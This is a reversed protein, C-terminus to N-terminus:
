CSGRMCPVPGSLDGTLEEPSDLDELFVAAGWPLTVDAHQDHCQLSTMCSGGGCLVVTLTQALAMHTRYDTDDSHFPVRHLHWYNKLPPLPLGLRSAAVPTDPTQM